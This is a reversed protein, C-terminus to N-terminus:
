LIDILVDEIEEKFRDIDIDENELMEDLNFYNCLRAFIMKSINEHHYSAVEMGEVNVIKGKGEGNVLHLFGKSDVYGRDGQKVTMINGSVITGIEFNEKILIEQGIKYKM